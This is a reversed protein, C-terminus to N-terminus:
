MHFNLSKKQKITLFVMSVFSIDLNFYIDHKTANGQKEKWKINLQFTFTYQCGLDLM